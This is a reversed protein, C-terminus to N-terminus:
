RAKRHVPCGTRPDSQTQRLVGSAVAAGVVLVAGVGAVSTPAALGDRVNGLTLYSQLGLWVMLAPLDDPVAVPKRKLFWPAALLNALLAVGFGAALGKSLAPLGLPAGTPAWWFRDHAGHILRAGASLGLGVGLLSSLGTLWIGYNAKARMSRLLLRAVGRSAIVLVVGGAALLALALPERGSEGAVRSGAPGPSMGLVAWGFLTGQLVLWVVAAAGALNQWPVWRNLSGFVTAAALGLLVGEIWPAPSPLHPAQLEVACAFGGWGLFLGPLLTSRFTAAGSMRRVAKGLSKDHPHPM